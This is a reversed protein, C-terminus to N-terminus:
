RASRNSGFVLPAGFMIAPDGKLVTTKLLLAAVIEPPKLLLMPLLATAAVVLPPTFLVM